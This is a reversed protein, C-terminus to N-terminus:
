AQVGFGCTLVVWVNGSGRIARAREGGQKKYMHMRTHTHFPPLTALCLPFFWLSLTLTSLQIRQIGGSNEDSIHFTNAM